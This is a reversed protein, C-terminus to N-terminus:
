PRPQTHTVAAPAAHTAAAPPKYTSTSPLLVPLGPPISVPKPLDGPPARLYLKGTQGCGALLFALMAASIHFVTSLRRM